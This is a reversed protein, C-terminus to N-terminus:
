LVAIMMLLNATNVLAWQIIGMEWAVMMVVVFGILSFM